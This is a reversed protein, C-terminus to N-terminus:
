KGGELMREFAARPVLYRGGIKISPIQGKHVGEYASNIGIGLREAVEAVKMTAPKQVEVPVTNTM